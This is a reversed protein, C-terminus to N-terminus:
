KKNNKFIIIVDSAPLLEINDVNTFQKKQDMTMQHKVYKGSKCDYLEITTADRIMNNVTFELSQVVSKQNNLYVYIEQGCKIAFHEVSDVNLAVQMSDFSGNGAQIMRDYINRVNRIYVDTGRNDFYEWWWSMPLIPTPSFLGYWLGRKFDIDMSDAFDDFNKKWDWEYGFEGIVYPENFKNTYDVITAPIIGTNKYIHKQNFDIHALNNLGAIDRHSISTTVLHHYPDINKIYTSMEDHWQVIAEGKIPHEHNAFQVNDVENFFEWAGISASYGWRAVIYRLRDKYMAKSEPNVFFDAASSAFGGDAKTYAGPGLTLMMHLGLSDCLNVLRDLKVVASPNFYADSNKYRRNNFGKKWDIPLNWRCIWTRFFNGGHAALLPLMREYNYKPDEHLDEFYKSDDNDRSEWCIDEGIGRFPKGNDFVFTWNNKAHLIGNRASNNAIFTKQNTRYIKSNTKLSLSYQYKGNEQPMFRAKWLSQEGSNGEVYYCPLVLKKGSPSQLLMDLTIDEQSYPNQWNAVLNINWEAKEYQRINKTQLAINKIGTQAISSYTFLLPLFFLFSTKILNM